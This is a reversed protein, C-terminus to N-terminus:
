CRELDEAVFTLGCDFEGGFAVEGGEGAESAGRDALEECDEGFGDGLAGFGALTLVDFFLGVGEM